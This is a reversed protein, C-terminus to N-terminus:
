PAKREEALAAYACRFGLRPLTTRPTLSSRMAYRMFAAYDERRASGTAGAGCMFKANKDGDQRNDGSVFLANFDDTWEWVLGHLAEVGYVNRPSGPQLLDDDRSPRGYWALIREVFDRERSADRRKEDAAAVYEWELTTPLRGGRWACFAQAAFYTVETVPAAPHEATFHHLYREDVLSAQAVGRRWRPQQALFDAFQARSVPRVDLRFASVPFSTQGVDLGFLPAFRGEPVAAVDGACLVVTLAAALM